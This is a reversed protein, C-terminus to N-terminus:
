SLVVTQSRVISGRREERRAEEEGRREEATRAGEGGIYMESGHM